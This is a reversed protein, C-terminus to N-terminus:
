TRKLLNNILLPNKKSRYTKFILRQRQSIPHVEYSNQIMLFTTTLVLVVPMPHKCGSVPSSLPACRRCQHTCLLISLFGARWLRNVQQYLLGSWIHYWLFDSCSRKDLQSAGFHIKWGWCIIYNTKTNTHIEHLLIPSWKTHLGTTCNYYILWTIEFLVHNM